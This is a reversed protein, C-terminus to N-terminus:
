SPQKACVYTRVASGASGDVSETLTKTDILDLGAARLLSLFEYENFHIEVMEVGYARKRYYKNPQGIVMPTRHFIVHRRAVRASEAIAKQYEPIHLLCCGSVVLDFSKDAYGLRTADEVAFTQAPYLRRAMDIFAASYDCGSYRVPLGAIAFVESYYGSSCGVELLSCLGGDAILPRLCDVLTRFVAVSRGQRFEALQKDVLKRQRGPIRDDKWGARLPSSEVLADAGGIEVNHSAGRLRGTLRGLWKIALAKMRPHRAFFERLQDIIIFTGWHNPATDHM